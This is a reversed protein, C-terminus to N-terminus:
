ALVAVVDEETGGTTGSVLVLVEIEEEAAM